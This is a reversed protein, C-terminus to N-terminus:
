LLFFKFLLLHCESPLFSPQESTVTSPNLSPSSSPSITRSEFETCNSPHISTAGIGDLFKNRCIPVKPRISPASSPSGSPEVSSLSAASPIGTSSGPATSSRPVSLQNSTAGESRPDFNQLMRTILDPTDIGFLPDEIPCSSNCTVYPEWFTDIVNDESNYETGLHSCNAMQRQRTEYCEESINNYVEVIQSGLKSWNGNWNGEMIDAALSKSEKDFSIKMVPKSCLPLATPRFATAAGASVVITGIAVTSLAITTTSSATAAAATAAGAAAAGATTTGAMASAAGITSAASISM